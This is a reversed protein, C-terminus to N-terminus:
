IFPYYFFLRDKDIKPFIIKLVRIKYAFCSLTGFFLDYVFEAAHACGDMDLSLLCTQCFEM